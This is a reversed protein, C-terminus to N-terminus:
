CGLAKALNNWAEAANRGTETTPPTERYVEQNADVVACTAKRAERGTQSIYAFALSLGLTMGLFGMLVVYWVRVRRAEVRRGAEALTAAKRAEGNTM